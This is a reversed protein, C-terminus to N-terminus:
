PVSPKADSQTELSPRVGAMLLVNRKALATRLKPTLPQGGEVVLLVQSPYRSDFWAPDVAVADALGLTLRKLDPMQAFAGEGIREISQSGLDIERVGALGRFTGPAVDTLGVRTLRLRPAKLGRIDEPGLRSFFNGSLDLLDALPTNLLCRPLSHYGMRTLQLSQTIGALPRDDGLCPDEAGRIGDLRLIPLPKADEPSQPFENMWAIPRLGGAGLDQLKTPDIALRVPQSPDQRGTWAHDDISEISTHSFDFFTEPPCGRALGAPLSRFNVFALSLWRLHPWAECLNAPAQTLPASRVALVELDPTAPNPVIESVDLQEMRLVKLGHREHVDDLPSRALTDNNNMDIELRELGPFARPWDRPVEKGSYYDLKLARLAPLRLGGSEVSNVGRLTLEQLTAPASQLDTMRFPGNHDLQLSVLRPPLKELAGPDMESYGLELQDIEPFVTWDIRPLRDVGLSFRPLRSFSSKLKRFFDPFEAGIQGDDGELGVSLEDFRQGPEFELLDGLPFGQFHDIWLTLSKVVLGAPLRIQVPHTLDIYVDQVHYGGLLAFFRQIREFEYTDTCEPEAPDCSYVYLYNFVTGPVITQCAADDGLMLAEKLDDPFDCVPIVAQASKPSAGLLILLAAAGLRMLKRNM